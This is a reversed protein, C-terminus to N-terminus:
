TGTSNSRSRDRQKAAEPVGEFVLAAYEAFGPDDALVDHGAGPVNYLATRSAESALVGLYDRFATSSLQDSTGGAILLQRVACRPLMEEIPELTPLFEATLRM